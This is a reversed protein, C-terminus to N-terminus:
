RARSVVEALAPLAAANFNAEVVQYRGIQVQVCIVAYGPNAPDRRLVAYAASINDPPEIGRILHLDLRSIDGGTMPLLASFAPSNPPLSWKEYQVEYAFNRIFRKSFGLANSAPTSTERLEDAGTGRGPPIATPGNSM